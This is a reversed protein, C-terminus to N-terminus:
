VPFIEAIIEVRTSEQQFCRSVESEHFISMVFPASANRNKGDWPHLMSHDLMYSATKSEYITPM